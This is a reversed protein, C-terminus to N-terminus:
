ESVIWNLVFISHLLKRNQCNATYTFTGLYNVTYRKNVPMLRLLSFIFRVNEVQFYLIEVKVPSDQMVGPEECSGGGLLLNVLLNGLNVTGQLEHHDSIVQGLRENQKGVLIADIQLM